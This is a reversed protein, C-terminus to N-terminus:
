QTKDVCCEDLLYAALAEIQEFKAVNNVHRGSKQQAILGGEALTRLHHALTSAPVNLKKQLEGVTLGEPGARVLKKLVALRPAAGAASFGQAAQEIRMTQFDVLGIIVIYSPYYNNISLDIADCRFVLFVSCDRSINIRLEVREAQRRPVPCYAYTDRSTGYSGDPLFEGM